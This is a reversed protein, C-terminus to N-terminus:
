KVPNTRCPEPARAFEKQTAQALGLKPVTMGDEDLLACGEGELQEWPHAGEEGESAAHPAALQLVRHALIPHGATELGDDGDGVRVVDEGVILAQQAAYTAVALEHARTRHELRRPQEEVRVPRGM